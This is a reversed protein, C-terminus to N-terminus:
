LTPAHTGAQQELRTQDDACRTAWPVARLREFPIERGCDVCRGYEGHRMARLADEIAHAEHLGRDDLDAAVSYDEDDVAEDGYDGTDPPMADRAVLTEVEARTRGWLVTLRDIMEHRLIDREAGTM